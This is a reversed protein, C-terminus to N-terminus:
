EAPIAAAALDISIMHGNRATPPPPAVGEADFAALADALVRRAEDRAEEDDRGLASIGPLDPFTAIVLGDYRTVLQVAYSIM